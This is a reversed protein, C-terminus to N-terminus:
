GLFPSTSHSLCFLAQRALMLEFGLAAMFLIFLCVFLYFFHNSVTKERSCLSKM